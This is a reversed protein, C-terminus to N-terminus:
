QWCGSSGVSSIQIVSTKTQGTKAAEGTPRVFSSISSDRMNSTPSLSSIAKRKLQRFGDFCATKNPLGPVLVAKCERSLYFLSLAESVTKKSKLTLPSKGSGRVRTEIRASGLSVIRCGAENYRTAAETRSFKPAIVASTLALWPALRLGLCNLAVGSVCNNSKMHSETPNNITTTPPTSVFILETTRVM